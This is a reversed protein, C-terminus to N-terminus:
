RDAGVANNQCADGQALYRELDGGRSVEKEDRYKAGPSCIMAFGKPM